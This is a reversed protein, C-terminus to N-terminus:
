CWILM